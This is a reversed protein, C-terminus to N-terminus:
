SSGERDSFDILIKWGLDSFVRQAAEAGPLDLAMANAARLADAAGGPYARIRYEGEGQILVRDILDDLWWSQACGASVARAFMKLNLKMKKALRMGEYIALQNLSLMLQNIQKAIQGNGQEGLYTVTSGIVSLAPLCRRYTEYNGGVFLTLRGSKAGASSGSVPADLMEVGERRLAVSVKKALEPSTSSLDVFALGRRAGQLIGEGGLAVKEVADAHLSTIVIDSAQAVERATSAAMAGERVLPEMSEKELDNVTMPYGCRLLRLAVPGGMTGLGIFGIREM